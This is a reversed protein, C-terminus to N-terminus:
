KALSRQEFLYERDGRLRDLSRLSGHKECVFVNKFVNVTHSIRAPEFEQSLLTCAHNISNAEVDKLAPVKCRATELSPLKTGQLRLYVVEQPVIEAYSFPGGRPERPPVDIFGVQKHLGRIQLLLQSGKKLFPASRGEILYYLAKEDLIASALLELDGRSGEKLEIDELPKEIELRGSRVIVSLTVTLLAPDPIFVM